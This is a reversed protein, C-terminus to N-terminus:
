IFRVFIFFLIVIQLYKPPQRVAKQRQVATTATVSNCFMPIELLTVTVFEVLCETAVTYTMM